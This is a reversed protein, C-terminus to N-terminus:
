NPLRKQEEPNQTKSNETIPTFHLISGSDDKKHKVLNVEQDTYASFDSCWTYSMFDTQHIGTKNYNKVSFWEQGTPLWVRM